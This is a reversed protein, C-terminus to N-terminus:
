RGYQTGTTGTVGNEWHCPDSQNTLKKVVFIPTKQNVVGRSVAPKAMPMTSASHM